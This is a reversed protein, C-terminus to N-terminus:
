KKNSKRENEEIQKYNQTRIEIRAQARKVGNSLLWEKNKQKKITTQKKKFNQFLNKDWGIDSENLFSILDTEFNSIQSQTELLSVDDELEFKRNWEKNLRLAFDVNKNRLVGKWFGKEKNQYGQSFCYLNYDLDSNETSNLSTQSYRINPAKKNIVNAKVNDFM